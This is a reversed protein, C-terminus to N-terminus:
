RPEHPLDIGRHDRGKFKGVGAGEGIRELDTVIKM